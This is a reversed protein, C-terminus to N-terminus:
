NIMNLKITQVFFSLLFQIAKVKLIVLIMFLLILTTNTFIFLWCTVSLWVTKYLGGDSM